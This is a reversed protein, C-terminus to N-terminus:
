KRGKRKAPVAAAQERLADNDKKIARLRNEFDQMIAIISIKPVDFEGFVADRLAAAQGQLNKTELEARAVRQHLATVTGRFADALFSVDPREWCHGVDGGPGIEDVLTENRIEGAELVVTLNLQGRENSGQVLAPFRTRGARQSGHRIHYIVVEGVEPARAERMPEGEERIREAAEPNVSSLFHGM